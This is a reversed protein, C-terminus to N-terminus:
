HAETPSNDPEKHRTRPSALLSIPKKNLKNITAKWKSSTGTINKPSNVHLRQGCLISQVNLKLSFTLQPFILLTTAGTKIPLMSLYM